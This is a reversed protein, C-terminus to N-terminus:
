FSAWEDDSNDSTIPNIQKPTAKAITATQTPKTTTKNTINTTQVECADLQKATINDKGDFEKKNADSVVLNAIKDTQLAVCQTQSAINANEQTQQDLQTVANNIQEIGSRQEKSATEVNQILEITKSINENLSQYGDIMEDSIKKGNNAKTTANSVLTKIENAAEASRSALNRVEQAVVAFGKGAEGATAAEVAANLSLINTQFAIQDIVSIAENIATVENNIEDMATTTQTALSQGQHTSSTVEKAYQAMKVINNTNNEINSTIQELSAATEELAAAVENSNKNLVDVNSLLSQSSSSLTLGNEKNEVLTKTISTRLINIDEILNAFVGGKEVGDIELKTRYDLKSYEELITNMKVFREKLHELAHNVTAKLRILAPNNTNVKIHESFWGNGLRHMVSQTDKIFLEDEKIGAEIDDLYSNINKSIDAIEDNNQIDIRNSAKGTNKLEETADQLQKLSKFISTGIFTALISVALVLIFVIIYAQTITSDETSKVEAKITKVLSKIVSTTKGVTDRMKKKLGDNLSLGVEKQANALALFSKKYSVLSDLVLKKQEPTFNKKNKSINKYMSDAKKALKSVYKIDGRLMFDKEHKRLELVSSLLKYFKIEKTIDQMTKASARLSGYLADTPTLGIEKQKNVIKVFCVKYAKIISVFQDVKSDDIGIDQLMVKLKTTNKYLGEIAKNFKAEDQLSKTALFNKEQMRLLRMDARLDGVKKEASELKGITNISVNLLVALSALGIISILTLIVLRMKITMNGFM